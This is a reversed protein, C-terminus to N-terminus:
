CVVCIERMEPTSAEAGFAKCDILLVKRLASTIPYDGAIKFLRLGEMVTINDVAISVGLLLAIILVYLSPYVAPLNDRRYPHALATRVKPRAPQGEIHGRAGRRLHPTPCALM